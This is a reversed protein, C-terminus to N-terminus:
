WASCDLSSLLILRPFRCFAAYFIAYCAHSFHLRIVFLLVGLGLATLLYVGSPLLSALM